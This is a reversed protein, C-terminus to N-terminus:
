YQVIHMLNHLLHPEKIDADQYLRAVQSTQFPFKSNDRKVCKNEQCITTTVMNTLECNCVDQEMDVLSCALKILTICKLSHLYLIRLTTVSRVAKNTSNTTETHLSLQWVASLATHWLSLGKRGAWWMRGANFFCPMPPEVSRVHLPFYGPLLLLLRWSINNM